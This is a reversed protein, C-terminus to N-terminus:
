ASGISASVHAIHPPRSSPRQRLDQQTPEYIRTRWREPESMQPDWTCLPALHRSLRYIVNLAARADAETVYSRRARAAEGRRGRCEHLEVTWGCTRADMSEELRVFLHRVPDRDSGTIFWGAERLQPIGTMGDPYEFMQAYLRDPGM